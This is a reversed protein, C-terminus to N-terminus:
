SQGESPYKLDEIFYAQTMVWLWYLPLLLLGLGMTFTAIIICAVLALVTGAMFAVGATTHGKYLHGAGPIVSLLLAVLHRPNRSSDEAKAEPSQM